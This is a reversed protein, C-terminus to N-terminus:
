LQERSAKKQWEKRLFEFMVSVIDQAVETERGRLCQSEQAQHTLM